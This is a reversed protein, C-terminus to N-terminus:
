KRGRPKPSGVFIRLDLTAQGVTGALDIGHFWYTGRPEGDDAGAPGGEISPPLELRQTGGPPLSLEIRQMKPMPKGPGGEYHAHAEISDLGVDFPNTLEIVVPGGDTGDSVVTHLTLTHISSGRIYPLNTLRERTTRAGGEKAVWDSRMQAMEGERGFDKSCPGTPTIADLLSAEREGYVVVAGRTDDDFRGADIFVNLDGLRLPAGTYHTGDDLCYDSPHTMSASENRVITGVFATAKSLRWLGAETQLSEDASATHEPAGKSVEDSESM